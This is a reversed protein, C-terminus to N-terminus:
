SNSVENQSMPPRAPKWRHLSTYRQINTHTYTSGQLLSHWPAIKDANPSASSTSNSNDTSYEELEWYTITVFQIYDKSDEASAYNSDPSLLVFFFNLKELYNGTSM